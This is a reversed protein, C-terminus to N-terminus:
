QPYLNMDVTTEGTGRYWTGRTGASDLSSDPISITTDKATYSGNLTGDVDRADLVWTNDWPSTNFNLSYKGLSDTYTSDFANSGAATDKLSVKIGRLAAHTIDSSHITGIVKYNAWPMGYEAVVGYVPTTINPNNCFLGLIFSLSISLLKLFRFFVTDCSKKIFNM